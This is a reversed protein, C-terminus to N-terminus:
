NLNSGKTSNTTSVCRYYDIILNLGSVIIGAYIQQLQSRWNKLERYRHYVSDKIYRLVFISPVHFLIM